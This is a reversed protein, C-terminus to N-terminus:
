QDGRRGSPGRNSPAAIDESQDNRGAVRLRFTDFAPIQNAFQMMPMRHSGDGAWVACQAVGAQNLAPVVANVTDPAAGGRGDEIAVFSAQRDPPPAANGDGVIRCAAHLHGRTLGADNLLGSELYYGGQGAALFRDRVLNRSSVKFEVNQGVRVARPADTILVSPNRQQAAVEGMETTVCTPAEQFGDHEDLQSQGCDRALPTVGPAGHNHAIPVRPAGARSADAVGGAVAFVGFMAFVVLFVFLVPKAVRIAKTMIMEWTSSGHASLSPPVAVMTVDDRDNGM